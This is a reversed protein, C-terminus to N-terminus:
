EEEDKGSYYEDYPRLQGVLRDMAFAGKKPKWKRIDGVDEFRIFYIPEWPAEDILRRCVVWGKKNKKATYDYRKGCVVDPYSSIIKRIYIQSYGGAM